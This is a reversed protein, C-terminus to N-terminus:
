TRLKEGQVTKVPIYGLQAFSIGSFLHEGEGVVEIGRVGLPNNRDQRRGAGFGDLSISFALVRVKSM